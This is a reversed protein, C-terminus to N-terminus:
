RVVLVPCPAHRVVREAVSGILAGKLGTRGHTGMIILDILELRALEVVDWGPYGLRVVATAPVGQRKLGEALASLHKSMEAMLRGEMGAGEGPGFGIGHFPLHVVHLLTLRAKFQRAYATAHQLALKAGESFDFPVLIHLLRISSATPAAHSTTKSQKRMFKM